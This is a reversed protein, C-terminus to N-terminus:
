LVKIKFMTWSKFIFLIGLIIKESISLHDKKLGARQESM